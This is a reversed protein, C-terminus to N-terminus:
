NLIHIAHWLIINLIYTYKSTDRYVCTVTQTHRHLGERITWPKTRNPVVYFLFMYFFIARALYYTASALYFFVRDM